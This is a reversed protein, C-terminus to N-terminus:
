AACEPLCRYRSSTGREFVAVCGSDDCRDASQGLQVRVQLVAVQEENLCQLHGAAVVLGPMGVVTVLPDDAGLQLGLGLLFEGAAVLANRRAVAGQRQVLQDRQRRDGEVDDVPGALSRGDDADVARGSVGVTQRGDPLPERGVQTEQGDVQSAVAEGVFRGAAVADVLVDAVQEFQDVGELQFFRDQESM